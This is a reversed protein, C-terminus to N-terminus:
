AAPRRMLAERTRRAAVAAAAEDEVAQVGVGDV